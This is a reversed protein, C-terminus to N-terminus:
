WYTVRKGCVCLIIHQQSQVYFLVSNQNNNLNLLQNQTKTKRQSQGQTVWYDSLLSLM